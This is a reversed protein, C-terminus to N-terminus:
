FTSHLFYQPINSLQILNEMKRALYTIDDLDNICIDFIYNWM